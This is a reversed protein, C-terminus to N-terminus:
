LFILNTHATYHKTVLIIARLPKNQLKKKKRQGTLQQKQIIYNLVSTKSKFTIYEVRSETVM